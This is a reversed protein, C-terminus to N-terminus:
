PLVIRKNIVIKQLRLSDLRLYYVGAPLNFVDINGGRGERVLKGSSAYLQYSYEGAPSWSFWGNSPNPYINIPTVEREDDISTLNEKGSKFINSVELNTLARKFFCLEDIAGHFFETDAPSDRALELPGETAMLETFNFAHSGIQENNLFVSVVGQDFRWSIFNWRRTELSGPAGILRHASHASTNVGRFRLFPVTEGNDHVRYAVNYPWEGEALGTKTLLTLWRNNFYSEPKVWATITLQDSVGAFDSSHPILVYDDTGDFFLAQGVIGEVTAPSGFIEGDNSNESRDETHGDLPYYAVIDSDLAGQALM